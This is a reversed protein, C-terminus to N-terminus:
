FQLQGADKQLQTFLQIAEKVAMPDPYYAQGSDQKPKLWELLALIYVGPIEKSSKCGTLYETIAHRIADSDPQGAFCIDIMGTVLGRQKQNAAVKDRKQFDDALGKIRERLVEPSYPREEPGAAEAEQKEQPEPQIDAAEADIVDPDPTEAQLATALDSHEEGSMDAWSLLQRLVTKMEMTERKKPDSWNPNKAYDKVFAQAHDEIEAISMWISKEFGKKTKFYGLWGIIKLDKRRRDTVDMLAANKGPHEGVLGGSEQVLHLGTLPNELVRQGEYVPTVNIQWYKGTRMALTYLGKYHPQFQAEKVWTPNERTGINKNYPVLWAQKLSPDCSLGLTAARLASRLISENTCSRLEPTSAAAIVVSQAYSKGSRDGLIDTFKTLVEPKKMYVALDSM